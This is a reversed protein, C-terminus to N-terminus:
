EDMEIMIEEDASEADTAEWIWNVNKSPSKAKSESIYVKPRSKQNLLTNFYGPVCPSTSCTSHSCFINEFTGGHKALIMKTHWIAAGVKHGMNYLTLSLSDHSILPILDSAVLERVEADIEKLDHLFWGYLVLLSRTGDAFSRGLPVGHHKKLHRIYTVSIQSLLEIESQTYTFVKLATSRLKVKSESMVEPPHSGACMVLIRVDLLIDHLLRVLEEHERREYLTTASSTSSTSSSPVHQLSLAMNSQLTIAFVIKSL